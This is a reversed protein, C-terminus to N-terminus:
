KKCLSSGPLLPPLLSEKAVVPALQAVRGEVPLAVQLLVHLQDVSRGALLHNEPADGAFDALLLQFSLPKEGPVLEFTLVLTTYGFM